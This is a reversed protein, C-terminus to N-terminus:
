DINSLPVIYVYKNRGGHSRARGCPWLWVVEGIVVVVVTAVVACADHMLARDLWKSLWWM